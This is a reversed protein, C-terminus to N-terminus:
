RERAWKFFSSRYTTGISEPHFQFSLVHDFKSAMLQGSLGSLFANARVQRASNLSIFLSNYRQVSISKLILDRPFYDLWDPITFEVTHGHVPHPDRLVRAGLFSWILQHGLCIGVLPKNSQTLLHHIMPQLSQYETPHGPGPGLIVGHYQRLSEDLELPTLGVWDRWSRVACDKGQLEVESAINYTFSDDFDVLLFPKM